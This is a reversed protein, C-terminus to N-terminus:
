HGVGPPPPPPPDPQGGSDTEAQEQLNAYWVEYDELWKALHRLIKPLDLQEDTTKTDDLAM